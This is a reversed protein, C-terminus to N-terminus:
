RPRQLSLLPSRNAKCLHKTPQMRGQFPRTASMDALDDDAFDYEELHSLLTWQIGRPRDSTTEGLRHSNSVLNSLSYFETTSWVQHPIVKACYERLYCQM